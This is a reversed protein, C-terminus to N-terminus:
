SSYDLLTHYEEFCKDPHLGPESPCSACVYTTKLKHGKDTRKGKAYCVRCVKSPRKDTADHAAVKTSPFHRASLRTIDERLNPINCPQQEDLLILDTIVKQLFELFSEQSDTEICYIKHANLAVQSILRFALKRYWKYSRRLTHLGHLQQDVKDVGGMHINYDTIMSPKMVKSGDSNRKATEVMYSNHYTSLLYVVKQKKNAKDKSDRYKSVLVEPHNQSRSFAATGKELPVDILDKPFNKRTSRITGVLYTGNELLFKALNPSTYYNDTFLVHNRNLYPEILSVPIRESHPLEDFNDDYYM